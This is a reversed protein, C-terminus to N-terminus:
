GMMCRVLFNNISEGALDDKEAAELLRKTNIRL